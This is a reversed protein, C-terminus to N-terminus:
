SYKARYYSLQPPVAIMLYIVTPNLNVIFSFIDDESLSLHLLIRRIDSQFPSPDRLIDKPCFSHPKTPSFRIIWMPIFYVVSKM